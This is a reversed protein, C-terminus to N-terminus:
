EPKGKRATKGLTGRSRATRGQAAAQADVDMQGLVDRSKAKLDSRESHPAAPIANSKKGHRDM